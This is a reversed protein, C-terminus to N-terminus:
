GLAGPKSGFDLVIKRAAAVHDVIGDAQAGLM